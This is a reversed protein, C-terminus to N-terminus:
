IKGTGLVARPIGNLDPVVYVQELAQSLLQAVAGAQHIGVEFAMMGEPKLATLWRRIICRYFDLGDAGGDLAKVPEHHVERSLGAMDGRPIYPPNSVILDLDAIPGPGELVDLIQLTVRDTQNLRINQRCYAAADESLEVAIVQADPRNHAISVGICGSGACLDAIRPNPIDEVLRLAEDVLIETDARPILVGPGVKFPLSYFEWEGLIYQLPEGGARRSVAHLFRQEQRGGVPTDGDALLGARDMGTCHAFLQLCDFGADETQAAELVDLGKRYLQKATM